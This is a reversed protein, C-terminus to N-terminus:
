SVEEMDCCIFIIEGCEACIVIFDEAEFLNHGTNKIHLRAADMVQDKIEELDM